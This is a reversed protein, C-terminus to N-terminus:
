FTGLLKIDVPPTATCCFLLLALTQSHIVGNTTISVASASHQEKM